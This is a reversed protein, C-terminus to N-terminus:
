AGAFLGRVSGVVFALRGVSELAVWAVRVPLSGKDATARWCFTATRALYLPVFLARAFAREKRGAKGALRAEGIGRLYMHTIFDRYSQFETHYVIANPVFLLRYGAERARRSLDPDDGGPFHFGEDFGGLEELVSRRYCANATAANEFVPQVGSSYEVAACFKSVWNTSPASRVAGGVAGVDPGSQELAEALCTLWDEAPACDDDLFAILQGRAAKWGTNRAVAPGSNERRLLRANPLGAVAAAAISSHPEVSGDDVVVVEYEGAPAAVSGLAALTNALIRGRNFTPIVV